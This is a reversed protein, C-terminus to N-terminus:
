PWLVFTSALLFGCPSCFYLLSWPPPTSFHCWLCPFPRFLPSVPCPCLPPWQVGVVAIMRNAGIESAIRFSPFGEAKLPPHSNSTQHGGQSATHVKCTVWDRLAENEKDTFHSALMYNVPTGLPTVPHHLVLYMGPTVSCCWTHGEMGGDIVSSDSSCPQLCKLSLSSLGEWEIQLAKLHHRLWSFIHRVCVGKWSPSTAWSSSPSSATEEPDAWCCLAAQDLTMDKPAVWSRRSIPAFSCFGM